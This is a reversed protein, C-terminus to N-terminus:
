ARLSGVRGLSKPLALGWTRCLAGVTREVKARGLKDM